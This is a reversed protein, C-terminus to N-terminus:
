SESFFIQRYMDTHTQPQQFSLTKRVPPIFFSVTSCYILILTVARKERVQHIGQQLPILIQRQRVLEGINITLIFGSLEVPVRLLPGASGDEVHRTHAFKRGVPGDPFVAFVDAVSEEIKRISGKEVEEPSAGSYVMSVFIRVLHIGYSRKYFYQVYPTKKAVFWIAM